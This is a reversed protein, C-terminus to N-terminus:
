KTNDVRKEKQKGTPEIEGFYKAAMGNWAVLDKSVVSYDLQEFVKFQNSSSIANVTYTSMPRNARQTVAM